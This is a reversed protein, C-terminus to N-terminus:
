ATKRRLDSGLFQSWFKDWFQAFLPSSEPNFDSQLTIEPKILKIESQDSIGCIFNLLAVDNTLQIFSQTVIIKQTSIMVQLNMLDTM